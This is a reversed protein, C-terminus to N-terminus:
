DFLDQKASNNNNIFKKRDGAVTHQFEVKKHLCDMFHSNKPIQNYQTSEM